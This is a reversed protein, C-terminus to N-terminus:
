IEEEQLICDNFMVISDFEISPIIYAVVCMFIPTYNSGLIQFNEMLGYLLIMIEFLWIMMVQLKDKSTKTIKIVKRFILFYAFVFLILCTIGGALLNYIYANDIYGLNIGNSNAYTYVTHEGYGLLIRPTNFLSSASSIRNFRDQITRISQGVFAEKFYNSLDSFFKCSNAISPIYVILFFLTILLGVVSTIVINRVKHKKFTNILLYILIAVLFILLLIIPTKSRSIILNISLYIIPILILKKKSIYTLYSLGLISIFLIFGYANKNDFFSTVQYYVSEEGQATFSKVIIDWQGILSYLTCVVAILSIVVFITGIVKKDSILPMAEFMALLTFIMSGLYFVAYVKDTTSISINGYPVCIAIINTILYIGLLGLLYYNIKPKLKVVVIVISIIFLGFVIGRYIIPGNNTTTQGIRLSPVMAGLILLFLYISIFIGLFISKSIINKKFMKM